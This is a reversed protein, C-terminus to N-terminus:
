CICRWETEGTPLAWTCGVDECSEAGDEDDCNTFFVPIFFLLIFLFITKM